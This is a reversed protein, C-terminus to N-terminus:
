HHFQYRFCVSVFFTKAGLISKCLKYASTSVPFSGTVSDESFFVLSLQLKVYLVFVGGFHFVSVSPLAVKNKIKDASYFQSQKQILM